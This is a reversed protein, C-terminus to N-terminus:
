SLEMLDEFPMGILEIEKDCALYYSNNWDSLNEYLGIFRDKPCKEISIENFKDIKLFPRLSGSKIYWVKKEDGKDWPGIIDGENLHCIEIHEILNPKNIYGLSDKGCLKKLYFETADKKETKSLKLINM